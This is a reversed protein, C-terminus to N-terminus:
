LRLIYAFCCIHCLYCCWVGIVFVLLMIYVIRFGFCYDWLCIVRLWLEILGFVAFVVLFRLRAFGYSFLVDSSVSILLDLLVVICAVSFLWNILYVVILVCM